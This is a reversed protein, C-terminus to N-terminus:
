DFPEAIVTGGASKANRATEDVNASCVYTGWHPPAKSPNEQFLAGVNEGAQHLMTYVMDPGMPNDTYSWGFLSTYFAKAGNSDSTNLEAWCFNGPQHETVKM